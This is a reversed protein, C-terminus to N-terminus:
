FQFAQSVYGYIRKNTAHLIASESIVIEHKNTVHCSYNGNDSDFPQYIQLFSTDTGLIRRLKNKGDEFNIVPESDKMWQFKCDGCREVKVLFFAGLQSPNIQNKPQSTILAEENRAAKV